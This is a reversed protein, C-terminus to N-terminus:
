NQSTQCKTGGETARLAAKIREARAPTAGCRGDKILGLRCIRCVAVSLPKSMM